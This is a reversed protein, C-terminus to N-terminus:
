PAVPRLHDSVAVFIAVVLIAAGLLRWALVRWEHHAERSGLWRGLLWVALVSWLGRSSYLINALPAHQYIAISSILMLAQVALCGAGAMLWRNANPLLNPPTTKPFAFSYLATCGMVIPLVLGVGWVHAWKQVLVDFLAYAVAALGALIITTGVRGGARPRSFQLLAIGVCSLGAASWLGRTLQQGVLASSLLAVLIIKLGLVPTTISVDGIRLAFLTLLHGILFLLAVTPPQWWKSLEPITGGFFVLPLFLISTIINCTRTARWVDVGSEAARKLFLAAVVYIVGSALPLILNLPSPGPPLPSNAFFAMLGTM